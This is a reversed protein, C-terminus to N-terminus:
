PFINRLTNNKKDLYTISIYDLRVELTVTGTETTYRTYDGPKPQRILKPENFLFRPSNHFQQYKSVGKGYKSSCLKQLRNYSYKISDYTEKPLNVRVKYVTQSKGKGYVYVECRKDLFVGKLQFLSDRLIKPETFGSKVLEGTFSEVDGQIPINEFLLHEDSHCSNLFVIFLLLLRYQIKM